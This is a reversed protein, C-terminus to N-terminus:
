SRSTPRMPSATLEPLVGQQRWIGTLQDQVMDLEPKTLPVDQVVTIQVHEGEARRLEWQPAWTLALCVCVVLVSPM